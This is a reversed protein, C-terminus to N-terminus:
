AGPARVTDPSASLRAPAGRATDLFRGADPRTIVIRGRADRRDTPYAYGEVLVRLGDLVSGDRAPNEIVLRESALFVTAAQEEIWYPRRLDEDRTVRLGRVPARAAVVTVEM